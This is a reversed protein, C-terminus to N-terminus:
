VERDVNRCRCSTAREQGLVCLVLGSFLGLKQWAAMNLSALTARSLLLSLLVAQVDLSARTKRDLRQPSDDYNPANAL